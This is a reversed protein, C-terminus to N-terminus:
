RAALESARLLADRANQEDGLREYIGALILWPTDSSPDLSAARELDAISDAVLGRGFNAVGRQVFIGASYPARVTLEDLRDKAASM